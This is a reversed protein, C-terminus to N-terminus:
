KESKRQCHVKMTIGIVFKINVFPDTRSASCLWAIKKVSHGNAGLDFINGGLADLTALSNAKLAGNTECGGSLLIDGDDCSLNASYTPKSTFVENVKIYLHASTKVYHPGYTEIDINNQNSVMDIVQNRTLDTRAFVTSFSSTIFLILVFLRM